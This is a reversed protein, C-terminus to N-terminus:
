SSAWNEQQKEKRKKEDNRGVKDRKEEQTNWWKIERRKEHTENGNMKQQMTDWKTGM